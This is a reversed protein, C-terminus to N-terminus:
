IGCQYVKLLVNLSCIEKSVSWLFKLFSLCQPVIEIRMSTQNENPWCQKGETTKTNIVAVIVKLVLGRPYNQKFTGLMM